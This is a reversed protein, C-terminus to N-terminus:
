YMISGFHKYFVQGSPDGQQHHYVCMFAFCECMYFLDTYLFSGNSNSIQTDNFFSNLPNQTPISVPNGVTKLIARFM